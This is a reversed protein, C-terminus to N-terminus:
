ARTVSRDVADIPSARGSEDDDPDSAPLDNWPINGGAIVAARAAAMFVPDSAPDPILDALDRQRRQADITDPMTM